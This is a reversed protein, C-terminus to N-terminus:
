TDATTQSINMSSTTTSGLLAANGTAAQTKDVTLADIMETNQIDALAEIQEVHAEQDRIM